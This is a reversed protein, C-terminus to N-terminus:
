MAVADLFDELEYLNVDEIDNPHIVIILKKSVFQRCSAAVFSTIIMQVLLKRSLNTRALGSGLIPMSVYEGQSKRRVEDWLCGLAQWITNNDSSAVCEQDMKAYVLFFYRAKVDGLTAVTGLPYRQQKGRQKDLDIQSQTGLETLVKQLDLDLREYDGSYVRELFQGQVSTQKIIEGPQTDFTDNTGVVLHGLQDFLNGVKIEIVVDQSGAITQSVSLRPWRTFLAIVASLIILGFYGRWDGRSEPFFLSIPELFLWFLGFIAIFRIVLSKLGIRRLVQLRLGINRVLGDVEM